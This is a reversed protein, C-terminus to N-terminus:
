DEVPAMEAEVQARYLPADSCKRASSCGDGDRAKGHQVDRAAAPQWGDTATEGDKLEGRLLGLGGGHAERPRASCRGGNRAAARRGRQSM